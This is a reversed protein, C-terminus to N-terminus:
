QQKGWQWPVGSKLLMHLPALVTSVNPLYRHYFNLMGLYSQLQTVTQPAPAEVIAQVKEPMTRVGTQDIVHGCYSVEPAMFTCKELNLRLSAEALRSLVEELNDMGINRMMRAQCWCM